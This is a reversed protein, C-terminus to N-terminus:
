DFLLDGKKLIRIKRLPDLTGIVTNPKAPYNKSVMNRLNIIKFGFTLKKTDEFYTEYVVYRKDEIDFYLYNLDMKYELRGRTYVHTSFDLAKWSTEDLTEPYTLQVTDCTGFRVVIYQENQEVAVAVYKDLETEFEVISKENDLVYGEQAQCIAFSLLSLCLLITKM